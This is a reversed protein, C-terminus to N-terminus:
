RLHLDDLISDSVHLSGKGIGLDIDPKNAGHFDSGGTILLHYQRALSKM